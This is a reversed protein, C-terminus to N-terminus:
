SRPLARAATQVADLADMVEDRQKVWGRIYSNGIEGALYKQNQASVPELLAIAASVKQELNAVADGPEPDDVGALAVELSLMYLDAMSGFLMAGSPATNRSTRFDGFYSQLDNSAKTAKRRLEARAASQAAAEAERHLTAIAEQAAPAHVGEPYEALFLEYSEVSGEASLEEFRAGEQDCGTILFLTTALALSALRTM